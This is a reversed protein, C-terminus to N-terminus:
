FVFGGVPAVATAGPALGFSFQNGNVAPAVMDEEEEESEFFNKLLSVSKHYIEENDHQQLDELGDLGGCEEVFESFKNVGTEAADKQGVALINEVGELAVMVVKADSCTFLECMAPIAGQQVLFRIQQKSGGSTANSIAWAAEKQIDFEADRLLSIMPPILNADMVQQIQDSSGATINSITWCAEKRINKKRHNLLGLLSGLPKEHLIATTQSDDGTVINGVCRLAPVQVSTHHHMLCQVVRPAVGAQLVATIKSNTPGNDDSLYSLAWCADTLIEVDDMRVLRALTPLIPKVMEFNPQPKGRCLNSLAWTANRIMSLKAQDNFVSLLPQVIGEGLVLDRFKPSDGAINGLAWVAQERVEHNPSALLCIFMKIAGHNIVQQTHDSTGSAINTLTWAAEFQLTENHQFTLLNVLRPVVGCEIVRAIPPNKEISLLKRFEQCAALIHTEVNQNLANVLAPLNKLRVEIDAHTLKDPAVNSSNVNESNEANEQAKMRRKMVQEDRTKKRLEVTNDVRKKRADDADLGKKLSDRNNRNRFM